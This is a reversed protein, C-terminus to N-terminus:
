NDDDDDLDGDVDDDVDDDINDDDDAAHDLDTWYDRQLQSHM